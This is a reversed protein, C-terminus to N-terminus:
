FGGGIAVQFHHDTHDGLDVMWGLSAKLVYISLSLQPGAYTTSRWSTVWYTREIHAELSVFPGMLDDVNPRGAVERMWPNLALGVGAGSGGIGLMSRAVLAVPPQIPGFFFLWSPELVFYDGNRMSFGSVEYVHGPVRTLVAHNQAHAKGGGILLLAAILGTKAFRTEM